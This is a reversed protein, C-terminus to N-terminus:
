EAALDITQVADPNSTRFTAIRDSATIYVRNDPGVAAALPAGGVKVPTGVSAISSTDIVSLTGAFLNTVYARSGDPSIAIDRHPGDDLRVPRGVTEGTETDLVLFSKQSEKGAVVYLRDGKPSIAMAGVDSGLTVQKDAREGTATDIKSFAGTPNAALYLHRGNPAPEATFGGLLGLSAPNGIVTNTATNIVSLFGGGVVLLRNGDSNMWMGTTCNVAPDAPCKRVAIPSGVTKKELTSIVSVHGADPDAVYVYKGDRSITVSHSANGVPIPKGIAKNTTTDIVLVHGSSRDAPDLPGRKITASVYLRAGDPSVAVEWPVTTFVPAHGQHNVLLEGGMTLVPVVVLGAFLGTRRLRIVKTTVARWFLALATALLVVLAGAFVTGISPDAGKWYGTWFYTGLAVALAGGTWGALLSLSFARPKALAAWVPVWVAMVTVVAYSWVLHSFYPSERAEQLHAAEYLARYLVYVGAAVSLCGLGAMAWTLPDVPRRLELHVVRTRKLVVGILLAALAVGLQGALQWWNRSAANTAGMAALVLGWTSAAAVGLIIGPGILPRTRPLLACIGAILAAPALATQYWVLDNWRRTSFLEPFRGGELISTVLLASALVLLVGSIGALGASRARGSLRLARRGADIFLATVAARLQEWNGTSHTPATAPAAATAPVEPARVSTPPEAAPETSPTEATRPLLAELREAAATQVTRSDDDALRRLQTIVHGRVLDNGIRYLHTLGDVAGLRDTAVPSDLANVLYTPLTWNINRAIVIRGEVNDQKKPRQQPMEEVVKDHVYSYLEDITINGDGDLDASGARLGEVLHRTFVSQVASGQARDGEFSYQTADSATLVTRGRGQFRELTHVARDGKAIRGAPFAGSYCCDLILVQQRSACDSMAQDIQEAPLSTFLLSDRRTNVTALYLRGDDDKLGHGTFYLLTLDDRRRNRYLDGIAEGVRHHPQNILTTVHFGAIEPDRLVTALSEADHAPATLQRLGVDRYEYTAILLAMRRGM